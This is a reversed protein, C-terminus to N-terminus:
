EAEGNTTLSRVLWKDNTLTQRQRQERRIFFNLIILMGPETQRHRTEKKVRRYQVGYSLQHRSSIKLFSMPSINCGNNNIIGKINQYPREM